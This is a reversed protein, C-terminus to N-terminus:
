MNREQINERILNSKMTRYSEMKQAEEYLEQAEKNEFVVEESFTMTNGVQEYSVKNKFQKRIKSLLDQGESVLRHDDKIKGNPYFISNFSDAFKMSSIFKGLPKGAYKINMDINKTEDFAIIASNKILSDAEKKRGKVEFLEAAREIIQTSKQADRERLLSNIEDDKPNENKEKKFRDKFREFIGKKQKETVDKSKKSEKERRFTESVALVYETYQDDTLIFEDSLMYKGQFKNRKKDIKLLMTDRQEELPMDDSISMEEKLTDTLKKQEINKEINKQMNLAEESEYLSYYMSTINYNDFADNALGEDEYRKVKDELDRVVKELMRDRQSDSEYILNDDYSFHKKASERYKKECQLKYEDPTIDSETGFYIKGKNTALNGDIIDMTRKRLDELRKELLELQEKEM